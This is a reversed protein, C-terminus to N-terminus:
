VSANIGCAQRSKIPGLRIPRELGFFSQRAVPKLQRAICKLLSTKGSGNAGLLVILEGPKFELSVDKFVERDPYSFTLSEINLHTV